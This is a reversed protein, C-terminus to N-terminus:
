QSTLRLTSTLRFPCLSPPFQLDIAIILPILPALPTNYLTGQQRWDDGIYISAEDGRM